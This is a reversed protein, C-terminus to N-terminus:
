LLCSLMNAHCRNAHSQGPNTVWLQLPLFKVFTHFTGKIWAMASPTWFNSILGCIFRHKATYCSKKWHHTKSVGQVSVGSYYIHSPFNTWCSQPTWPLSVLNGCPPLLLEMSADNMCISIHLGLMSCNWTLPRHPPSHGGGFSCVKYWEGLIQVTTLCVNQTFLRGRIKKWVNM